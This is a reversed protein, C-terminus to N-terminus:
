AARTMAEGGCAAGPQSQIGRQQPMVLQKVAFQLHMYAKQHSHFPYELMVTKAICNGMEINSTLRPSFGQTGGHLVVLRDPGTLVPKHFAPGAQSVEDGEIVLHGKNNILSLSHINNVQVKTFGKVCNGVANEQLFQSGM